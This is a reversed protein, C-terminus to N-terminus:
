MFKPSSLYLITKKQVCGTLVHWPYWVDGYIVVHWLPCTTEHANQRRLVILRKPPPMVQRGTLCPFMKAVDCPWREFMASRFFISHYVTYFCPPLMRYDDTLAVHRMSVHAAHATLDPWAQVGFQRARQPRLRLFADVRCLIKYLILGPPEMYLWQNKMFQFYYKDGLFVVFVIALTRAWYRGM